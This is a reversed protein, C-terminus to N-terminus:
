KSKITPNLVKIKLKQAEELLELRKKKGLTSAFRAAQKEPNVLQLETLNHVLVDEYGSPHLGKITKPSMYGVSVKKPKGAKGKRQKSQRGKPKRWKTGLKSYRFYERVRFRPKKKKQRKILTRQSKVIENM